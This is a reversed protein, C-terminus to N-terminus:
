DVDSTAVCTLWVESLPEFRESCLGNVYQRNMREFGDHVMVTSATTTALIAALLVVVLVRFGLARRRPTVVAPAPATEQSM